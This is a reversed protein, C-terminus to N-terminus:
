NILKLELRTAYTYQKEIPTRDAKGDCEYWGMFWDPVYGDETKRGRAVFKGCARTDKLFFRSQAYMTFHEGPPLVCDKLDAVRFTDGFIVLDTIACTARDLKENEFTLYIKRFDVDLDNLEQERFNEIILLRDFYHVETFTREVSFEPCYIPYNKYLPGHMNLFGLDEGTNSTVKKLNYRGFLLESKPIIQNAINKCSGDECFVKHNIEAAHTENVKTGLGAGEIKMFWPCSVVAGTESTIVRELIIPKNPDPYNVLASIKPVEIQFQDGRAVKGVIVPGPHEGEFTGSFLSVSNTAYAPQFSILIISILFSRVFGGELYVLRSVGPFSGPERM